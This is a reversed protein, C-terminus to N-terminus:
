EDTQVEKADPYAQEMLQHMFAVTSLMTEAAENAVEQINHVQDSKLPDTGASVDHFTKVVQELIADVLDSGTPEFRYYYAHLDRNSM